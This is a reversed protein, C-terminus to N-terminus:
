KAKLNIAHSSCFIDSHVFSCIDEETLILIQNCSLCKCKYRVIGDRGTFITSQFHLGNNKAQYYACAEEFGKHNMMYIFTPAAINFNRAIQSISKYQKQGWKLKKAKNEYYECAAQAGKRRIMHQLSSESINFYLAAEKMSNFKKDKYTIRKATSHNKIPKSSKINQIRLQEYYNCAEKIGKKKKMNYLCEPSIQFHAALEKM